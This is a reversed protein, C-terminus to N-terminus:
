FSKGTYQHQEWLVLWPTPLCFKLVCKCASPFLRKKQVLYHKRSGTFAVNPSRTWPFDEQPVQVLPLIGLFCGGNGITNSIVLLVWPCTSGQLSSCESEAGANLRVVEV